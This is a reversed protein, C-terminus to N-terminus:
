YIVRAGGERCARPHKVRFEAGARDSGGVAVLEGDIEVLGAAFHHQLTKDLRPSLPLASTGPTLRHRSRIAYIQVRFRM